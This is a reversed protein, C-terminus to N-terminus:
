IVINLLFIDIVNYKNKNNIEIFVVDCCLCIGYWRLCIICFDKNYIEIYIFFM